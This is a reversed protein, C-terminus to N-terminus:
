ISRNDAALRDDAGMGEDGLARDDRFARHDEARRGFDDAGKGCFFPGAQAGPRLFIDFDGAGVRMM